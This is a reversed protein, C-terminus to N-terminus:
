QEGEANRLQFLLEGDSSNVVKVDVGFTTALETALRSFDDYGMWLGGNTSVVKYPSSVPHNM